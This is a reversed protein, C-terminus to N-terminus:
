ERDAARPASSSRPDLSRDAESRAPRRAAAAEAAGTRRDLAGPSGVRVLGRLAVVPRITAPARRAARRAPAARAAVGDLARCCADRPGELGLDRERGIRPRERDLPLEHRAVVQLREFLRGRWLSRRTRSGSTTERVAPSTTGVVVSRQTGSASYRRSRARRSLGGEGARGAHEARDRQPQIM